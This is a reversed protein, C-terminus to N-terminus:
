QGVRILRLECLQLIFDGRQGRVGDSVDNSFVQACRGILEECGEIPFREPASRNALNM